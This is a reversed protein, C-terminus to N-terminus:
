AGRRRYQRLGSKADLRTSLFDPEMVRTVWTNQASAEEPRTPGGRAQTGQSSLGNALGNPGDPSTNGPVVMALEEKSRDAPEAQGIESPYTPAVDAVKKDEHSRLALRISGMQTALMVVHAQDPMVLLSVTRANISSEPDTSELDYIDNVAFVSIDQLITQVCTERIEKGANRQTYLM